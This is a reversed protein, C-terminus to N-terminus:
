SVLTLLSITNQLSIINNLCSVLATRHEGDLFIINDIKGFRILSLKSNSYSDGTINFVGTHVHLGNITEVVDTRSLISM